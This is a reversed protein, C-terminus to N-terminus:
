FLLTLNIRKRASDASQVKVTIEQGLHLVESPSQIFKQTIQSIHLLADQKAGIDVFAGFNTLNTVIGPIIMEPHVDSISRIREDFNFPRASGRPDLGPKDLEQMIDKLTPLGVKETIFDELRIQARIEKERIFASLDLKLSKAMKTVLLYSEPHVGTNDLPNDGDRIRLFGSAQEFAKEGVRPVSKLQEIRTFESNKRRYKVINKALTPGIGAIYNLIHESATNLNVGVNNVCSTVTMDLNEKLKGQHVDHQYQGVGISKADIKVLEALPDMLRRGISIAGRVTLDQDPFEERAVESASYISAGNENVMYIELKHDLRINEVWSKTERSATGNGIAIAEIQHNGILERLIHEAENTQRQPENPFITKYELFEGNSDMCAVKCGTRFGPDIALVAKQGLPPSLLLQRLNDSFVLIAMDDAKEKYENLIQTEIAPFILRDYSDKIAESILDAEIGRSRIYKRDIMQLSREDDMFLSVRLMGEKKGRLLALFRHSPCRSCLESFDFYDQYKAAEEKKKPVVKSEIKAFKRFNQRLRDRVDQDESVWEAIIDKAGMIALESSTIISNLYRVANIYIDNERQSMILKALPELGNERAIDARTKKKRKYPLYLDELENPDYTSIIKAKLEPTLKQQEEIAALITLKREELEELKKMQKQINGIQVEDLSGTMEKRYRAIFPLTAGDLLLQMTSKVSDKPIGLLNAILSIHHPYEM